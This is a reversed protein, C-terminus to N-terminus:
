NGTGGTVISCVKEVVEDLTFPSTDIRIADEACALPATKRASDIRDREGISDKHGQKTRRLERVKMDADLLFKFDADPLIVTGIDRGEMILGSFGHDRAVQVLSRQFDVLFGRVEPLAAFPSVQETVEPRRLDSEKPQCGHLRILASRGFVETDIGGRGLFASVADPELPSVGNQLCLHTIARYYSGTDVHLLNFREAVAQSTTSKGSAAGGDVAVIIFNKETM